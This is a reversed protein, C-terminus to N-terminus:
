DIALHTVVSITNTTSTYVYMINDVGMKAIHWFAAVLRAVRSASDFVESELLDVRLGLLDNSHSPMM